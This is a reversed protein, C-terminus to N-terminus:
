GSAAEFAEPIEHDIASHRRMRNYYTEIYEFIATTAEQGLAVVGQGPLAFVVLFALASWQKNM